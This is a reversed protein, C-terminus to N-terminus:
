QLLRSHKGVRALLFDMQDALPEHRSSLILSEALNPTYPLALLPMSAQEPTRNGKQTNCIKCALVINTFWRRGGKSAPVVHDLTMSSYPVPDACYMCIGRDRRYIARKSFPPIFREYLRTRMGATVVIPHLTLTSRLGTVSNIGGHLTKIPEGLSHLVRGKSFLAPVDELSLWEHPNWGADLRLVM